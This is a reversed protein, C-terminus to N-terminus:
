SNVELQRYIYGLNPAESTIAAMRELNKILDSQMPFIRAKGVEDPDEGKVWLRAAHANAGTADLVWAFRQLGYRTFGVIYGNIETAWRLPKDIDRGESYIETANHEDLIALVKDRTSSM